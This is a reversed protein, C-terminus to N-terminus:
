WILFGVKEDKAVTQNEIFVHKIFSNFFVSHQWIYAWFKGPTSNKDSQVWTWFFFFRERLASDDEMFQQM